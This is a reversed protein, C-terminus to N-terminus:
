SMCVANVHSKYIYMPWMPLRMTNRLRLPQMMDLREWDEQSPRDMISGMMAVKDGLADM